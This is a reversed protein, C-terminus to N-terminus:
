KQFGKAQNIRLDRQAKTIAGEAYMQQILKITDTSGLTRGSGSAGTFGPGAHLISAAVKTGKAKSKMAKKLFTSAVM